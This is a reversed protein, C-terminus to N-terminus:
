AEPDFAVLQVNIVGVVEEPKSTAVLTRLERFTDRLKTRVLELDARSVSVVNYALFDETRPAAAREAAVASWHRKLRSLAQQGGQTDVSSTGRVTFRERDREVAGAAALAELNKEAEAVDIALCRSIWTATAGGHRRGSTTELARLIAETWPLEFALQKAAVAVRYAPALSPVSEIPVLEAVWEAARGTMADLLKLFDPLRPHADGRLWRGIADRSYGARRGLESATASGRLEGLWAAVDFDNERRRLRARPSFRATAALVDIHALTAARLTEAATPFREGREWDTLPNGRYGLRRAFAVQSRKGRIARLLQSAAQDM